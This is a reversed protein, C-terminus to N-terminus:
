QALAGVVGKQYAEQMNFGTNNLKTNSGDMWYDRKINVAHGDLFLAGNNNGHAGDRDAPSFSSDRSNDRSPRFFM